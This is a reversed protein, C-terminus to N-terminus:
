IRAKQLVPHREVYANIKNEIFMGMNNIINWVPFLLKDVAVCASVIIITFGFVMAFLQFENQAFDLIKVAVPGIIQYLVIRACHLMYIALSSKGVYNVFRSKFKLSGIWMFLLLSSVLLGFSCYSFFARVYLAEYFRGTYSSFFWVLIINMLIYALAYYRPRLKSWEEKYIHLTNGIVYLFLFTAINKGGSLSPDIGITGAYHSIYGLVVILYIRKILSIDKLYYNIVPSLLYLYVYTRVYWLPNATVFLPLSALDARGGGIILYKVIALPVYFVFIMGILKIFGKVSAKIGFYGSILVFLIVGVHLPLWIAKHFPNETAPFIFIMFIHYFVIFVQAMIRILEFSSERTYSSVKNNM